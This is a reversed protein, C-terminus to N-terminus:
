ISQGSNKNTHEKEGTQGREFSLCCNFVELNARMGEVDVGVLGRGEAVVTALHQPAEDALAEFTFTPLFFYIEAVCFCRTNSTDNEHGGPTKSLGGGGCM